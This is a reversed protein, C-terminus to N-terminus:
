HPLSPIVACRGVVELAGKAGADAAETAVALLVRGFQDVVEEVEDVFVEITDL